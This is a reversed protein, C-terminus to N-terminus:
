DHKPSTRHRASSHAVRGGNLVRVRQWGRLSHPVRLFLNLLLLWGWIVEVDVVETTDDAKTMILALFVRHSALPNAVWWM